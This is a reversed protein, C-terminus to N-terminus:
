VELLTSLQHVLCNPDEDYIGNGWDKVLQKFERNSSIDVESQAAAEFYPTCDVFSNLEQFLNLLTLEM